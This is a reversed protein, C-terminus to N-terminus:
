DGYPYEIVDITGRRDPPLSERGAKLRNRLDKVNDTQSAIEWADVKGDRRLGVIDPRLKSQSARGTATRWALDLTIYEYEGTAILKEVRKLIQEDHGDTGTKQAKGILVVLGQPHKRVEVPM